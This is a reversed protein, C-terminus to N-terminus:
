HGGGNSAGNSAADTIDRRLEDLLRAVAQPPSSGAAAGQLQGGQTMKRGDGDFIVGAKDFAGNWRAIEDLQEDPDYGLERVMEPWTIAGLRLLRMYAIAEVGPDLLAPPPPTWEVAPTETLAAGIVAAQMAWRWVPDCFQPILLGWRWGHVNEWHRIRSMRAASYPLGTYDGVLDEYAVGLGTAIESLVTKAYAAHENIAPPDVVTISRGPPANHILGPELRDWQMEGAGQAVAIGLPTADGSIDSTIVALCAAIKQKMLAADLYEDFDKMRLAVGAFWSPARVQGPRGPRYVHLIESAPIRDSTLSLSPPHSSGPHDRFMWYAIRRGIRDFEIGQIISRDAGGDSSAFGAATANDKTSDLYDPELVQLQLPIPLNDEPRRLRRRVLCEGSEVVTRMVTKQLGAFDQRGDADCATTGAWAKWLEAAQKHKTSAAIGWGGCTHNVITSLASEAFANNRILERADSRLTALAGRLEANADTSPRKWGATRRGYSAADYGALADLAIRARVRRATWRPAFPATLKDIWAVM